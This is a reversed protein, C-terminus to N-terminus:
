EGLLSEIAANVEGAKEMHVIHGADPFRAVKIAPPLGEAHRAPLVQDMDGWIVQVPVTVKAAM